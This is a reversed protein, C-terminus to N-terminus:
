SLNNVKNNEILILAYFQSLV